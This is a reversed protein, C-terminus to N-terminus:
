VPQRLHAQCLALINKNEVMQRIIKGVRCRADRWSLRLEITLGMRMRVTDITDVNLVTVRTRIPLPEDPAADPEPPEAKRYSDPVLVLRCGVEDSGDRCDRVNDCRRKYPCISM